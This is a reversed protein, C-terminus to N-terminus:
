KKEEANDKPDQLWRKIAHDSLKLEVVSAEESELNVIMMRLKGGSPSAYILTTEGDSAETGDGHSSNRSRVRVFPYWGPGLSNEVLRIVKDASTHPHFDEFVALKMGSVGEPRVFFLAFGLMPIHTRRVGYQTEIANVVARFEPEGAFALTSAATISALSVLLLLPRFLKM